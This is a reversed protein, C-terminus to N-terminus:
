QGAITKAAEAVTPSFRIFVTGLLMILAVIIPGLFARWSKGYKVDEILKPLPKTVQEIDHLRQGHGDMDGRLSKLTEVQEAQVRDCGAMRQLMLPHGDSASHKDIRDLLERIIARAETKFEKLIATQAETQAVITAVDAKIDGHQSCFTYARVPPQEAM